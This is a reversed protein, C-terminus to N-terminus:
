SPCLSELPIVTCDRLERILKSAVVWRSAPDGYAVNTHEVPEPWVTGTTRYVLGHIGAIPHERARVAVAGKRLAPCMRSAVRVCPLCVPPENVGMREPWSPWGDRLDSLLWLAGDEARDAPGGCVNCLLRRMARRQRLPHVVAFRPEGHGQRVLSRVWLVGHRDRDYVTEDLYGIGSRREVVTPREAREASWSTIYPTFPRLAAVNIHQEARSHAAAM